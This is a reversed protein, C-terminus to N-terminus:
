GMTRSIDATCQIGTGNVGSPRIRADYIGQGLIKDLVEKEKERYNVKPQYGWSIQAFFCAFLLHLIANQYFDAFEM